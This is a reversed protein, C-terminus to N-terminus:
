HILEKYIEQMAQLLTNNETPTGISIRLYDKLMPSGSVDRVLLGRQLLKAYLEHATISSRVLMFNAESPVIVVGPLQQLEKAVREREHVMEQVLPKLEKDYMELAVEAATQSVINLNYPLMAKKIERVVTPAALMYGIRLGAMGMAKSFTRLVVLNEHEKLLGVVSGNTFEFYAEDVAVFGKAAKLLARVDGESMGRGTPNNPSCIVTVDPDLTEIKEILAKIDYDFEATLPVSVVEGGSVTAVQRYVAFTPESLLVRRNETITATMLAQIMGNSGNGVIVGEPTWEAFRALKQQLRDPVFDPYRSWARSELRRLTESKIAEPADYPNENQNIKISAQEPTLHYAKLSRVSPKIRDLYNSM